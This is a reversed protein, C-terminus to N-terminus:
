ADEIMKWKERGNKIKGLIGPIEHMLVCIKQRKRRKMLRMFKQSSDSDDRDWPLKEKM